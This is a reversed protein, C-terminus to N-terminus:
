SAIPNKRLRSQPEHFLNDVIVQDAEPFLPKGLGAAALHASARAAQPPMATVQAPQNRHRGDVAYGYPPKETGEAAVCESEDGREDIFEVM